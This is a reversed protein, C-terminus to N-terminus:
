AEEEGWKGGLVVLPLEDFVFLLLLEITPTSIESILSIKDDALDVNRCECWNSSLFRLVETPERVEYPEWTDADCLERCLKVRSDVM